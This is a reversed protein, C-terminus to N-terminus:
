AVEVHYTVERGMPLVELEDASLDNDAIFKDIFDVSGYLECVLEIIQRDQDLTITRRMPLSLSANMILQVCSYVLENLLLYTNSNADVIVDNEIKSDQFSKTVELMALLNNIVQVSEERSMTETEPDGGGAGPSGASMVGSLSALPPTVAPTRNIVARDPAKAVAAEAISLAAGTALSAVCASLVLSTSHYSNAVNKTGFPDNRFQNVLNTTLISYGKVKEM